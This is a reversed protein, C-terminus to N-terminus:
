LARQQGDDGERYFVMRGAAVEGRLYALLPEQVGRWGGNTALRELAEALPVLAVQRIEDDPDNSGLAGDWERVEFAFFVSQIPISPRDIQSIFALQGLATVRAGTEEAVERVLAESALEGVEVLGGPIVWYPQPDLANQQQVLIIADDRRVIALAVHEIMGPNASSGM